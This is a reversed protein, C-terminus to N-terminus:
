AGVGDGQRALRQELQAITWRAATLDAERRAADAALRDLRVELDAVLADGTASSAAPPPEPAASAGATRAEELLGLLERGVRTREAADAALEAIRRAQEALRREYAEV